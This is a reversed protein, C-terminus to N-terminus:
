SFRLHLSFSSHCVFHFHIADANEAQTVATNRFAADFKNLASFPRLIGTHTMRTGRKDTM